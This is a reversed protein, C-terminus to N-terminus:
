FLGVCALIILKDLYKQPSKITSLNTINLMCKKTEKDFDFLNIRGSNVCKSSVFTTSYITSDNLYHITSSESSVSSLFNQKFVCFFKYGIEYCSADLPGFPSFSKFQRGDAYTGLNRSKPWCLITACLFCLYQMSFYILFFRLMQCWIWNSTSSTLDVCWWAYMLLFHM